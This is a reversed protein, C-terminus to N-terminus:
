LEYTNREAELYQIFIFRAFTADGSAYHSSELDDAVLNDLAKHTPTVRTYLLMQISEKNILCTMDWYRKSLVYLSFIVSKQVVQKIQTFTKQTKPIIIIPM